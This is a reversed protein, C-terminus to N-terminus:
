LAKRENWWDQIEYAKDHPCVYHGCMRCRDDDAKCSKYLKRVVRRVIRDNIKM